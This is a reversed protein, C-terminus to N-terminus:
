DGWNDRNLLAASTATMQNTGTELGRTSCAGPKTSLNLWVGRKMLNPMADSLVLRSWFDTSILMSIACKALSNWAATKASVLNWSKPLPGRKPLAELAQATQSDHIAVGAEDIRRSSWGVVHSSSRHTIREDCTRGINPTSRDCEEMPRFGTRPVEGPRQGDNVSTIIWSSQPLVVPGALAGIAKCVHWTQEMVFERLLREREAIRTEARCRITTANCVIIIGNQITQLRGEPFGIRLSDLRPGLGEHSRNGDVRCEKLGIHLCHRSGKSIWPQSTSRKPKSFFATREMSQYVWIKFSSLPRSAM